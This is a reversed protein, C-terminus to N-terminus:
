LKNLANIARLNKPFKDLVRNYILLANKKDGIKIYKQAKHFSQELFAPQM